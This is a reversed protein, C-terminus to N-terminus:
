SILHRYSIQFGKLQLKNFSICELVKVMTTMQKSYIDVLIDTFVGYNKGNKHKNNVVTHILAGLIVLDYGKLITHNNLQLYSYKILGINVAM